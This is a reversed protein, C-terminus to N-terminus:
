HTGLIFRPAVSAPKVPVAGISWVDGSPDNWSMVDDATGPQTSGGGATAGGISEQEWRSTQDAGVAVATDWLYVNDVLWEDAAATVTVTATGTTGSSTGHTGVPDSQHVGNLAIAGACLEDDIGTLTVVVSASGTGPNVFYHGSNHFTAGFDWLETFTETGGRVVSTTPHAAGSSSGVGVFVFRDTGSTAFAPITFSSVGTAQVSSVTDFAIAM